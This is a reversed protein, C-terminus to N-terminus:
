ALDAFGVQKTDYNFVTYVERLFIDGVIWFPSDQAVLGGVCEKSGDFIPGLNFTEKSIEFARGGFSLSVSPTSDCPFVYFGPGAVEPAPRAGPVSAYTRAVTDGDAILLTTGTDIIAAHGLSSTINNVAMAELEVQWYAEKTVNTWAFEGKYLASNVGGLTLESDNEALKFAFAGSTTQNHAVLTQFVPNARTEAISSFAMGLLGDAAFRNAAFGTSYSSATGIVQEPAQLSHILFINLFPYLFLSSVTLGAIGVTDSYKMGAVKSSDGFASSFTGPMSRATSSKAPQYAHHGECSTTCVPGPLFLDSSGTDFDVTFNQPPTGVTITGYWMKNGENILPDSVIDRKALDGGALPHAEGTNNQYIAFGRKYKSHSSLYTVSISM